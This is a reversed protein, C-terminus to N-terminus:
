TRIVCFARLIDRSTTTAATTATTRFSLRGGDKRAQGTQPYPERFRAVAISVAQRPIHPLSFDNSTDDALRLLETTEVTAIGCLMIGILTAFILRACM